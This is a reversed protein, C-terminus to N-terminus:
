LDKDKDELWLDKVIVSPLVTSDSTLRTGTLVELHTQSRQYHFAVCCTIHTKHVLWVRTADHDRPATTVHHWQWVWPKKWTVVRPLNNVFMHRQWWATYNPVPWFTVRWVRWADSILHYVWRRDWFPLRADREAHASLIAINVRGCLPESVSSSPKRTRWTRTVFCTDQRQSKRSQNMNTPHHIERCKRSQSSSSSSSSNIHHHHHHRM